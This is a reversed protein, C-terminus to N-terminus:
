CQAQHRPNIDMGDFLLVCGRLHCRHRALARIAVWHRVLHPVDTGLAAHLPLVRSLWERGIGTVLARPLDERDLKRISRTSSLGPVM